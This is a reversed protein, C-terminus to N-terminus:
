SSSCTRSTRRGTCTACAQRARSARRAAAAADRLTASCRRAARDRRARRAGRAARSPWRGRRRRLGRRRRPEVHEAILARPTGEAIMTGHDIVALRDRPARGRGHLAHHAPDDQGAEAPQQLREWILHRAQPDLGTTPEDLILLDPDNILARALSLRRKMGGSLEGPEADRRAVAAGRVRAAAPHARRDDRARLGFYRATSSCTRACPSTPTSTTSSRCSASACAAGRAGREARCPRVGRDDGGDPMPSASAAHADDDDQRRREPRARRLM